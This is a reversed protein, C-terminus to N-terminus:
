WKEKSILKKLANTLRNFASIIELDVPSLSQGGSTKLRVYLTVILTVTRALGYKGIYDQLKQEVAIEEKTM